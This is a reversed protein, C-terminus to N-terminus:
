SVKVAPHLKGGDSTFDNQFEIMLLATTSPVLEAGGKAQRGPFARGSRDPVEGGPANITSLGTATAEKLYLSFPHWQSGWPEPLRTITLTLIPNSLGPKPDPTPNRNLKPEPEPEPLALWPIQIKVFEGSNPTSGKPNAWLM